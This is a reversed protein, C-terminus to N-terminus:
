YIILIYYYVSVYQHNHSSLNFWSEFCKLYFVTVDQSRLWWRLRGRSACRTSCALIWWSCIWTRMLPARPLQARQAWPHFCTSGMSVQLSYHLEWTNGNNCYTAQPKIIANKTWIKQQKMLMLEGVWRWFVYTISCAAASFNEAGAPPDSSLFCWHDAPQAPNTILCLLPFNGVQM